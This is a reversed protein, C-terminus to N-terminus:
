GTWRADPMDRGTRTVLAAMNDVCSGRSFIGAGQCWQSDMRCGSAWRDGLASFWKSAELLFLPQETGLGVGRGGLHLSGKEELSVCSKVGARVM